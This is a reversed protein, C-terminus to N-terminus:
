HLISVMLWTRFVFGDRTASITFYLNAVFVLSSTNRGNNMFSGNQTYSEKQSEELFTYTHLFPILLELKVVYM